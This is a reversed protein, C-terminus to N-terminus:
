PFTEKGEFSVSEPRRRSSRLAWRAVSVISRICFIPCDLRDAYLRGAPGAYKASAAGAGLPHRDVKSAIHAFYKYENTTAQECGTKAADSERL